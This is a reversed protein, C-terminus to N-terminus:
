LSVRTGSPLPPSLSGGSSGEALAEAISFGWQPPLKLPTWSGPGRKAALRSGWHRGGSQSGREVLGQM